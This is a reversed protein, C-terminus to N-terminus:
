PRHAGRPETWARPRRAQRSGPASSSARSLLVAPGPNAQTGSRLLLSGQKVLFRSLLAAEFGQQTEHVDVSDAGLLGPPGVRLPLGVARHGDQEIMGDVAVDVREVADVLKIELVHVDLRLWM